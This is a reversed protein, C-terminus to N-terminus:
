RTIVDHIEAILERADLPKAVFGMMGLEEAEAMVSPQSLGSVAVIRAGPDLELITRGAETGSMHPMVLDMLVLDPRLERYRQVAEAGNNAEGCVEMQAEELVMRIAERTAIADDVILIRLRV